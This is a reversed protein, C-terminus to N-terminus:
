EAPQALYAWDPRKELLEVQLPEPQSNFWSIFAPANMKAWQRSAGALAEGRRKTNEIALAWAVAAAPRDELGKSIAEAAADRLGPDILAAEWAEAARPQDDRAWTEFVSAVAQAKDSASVSELAWSLAAAPDERAYVKAFIPLGTEPSSTSDRLRDVLDLAGASDVETLKDIAANFFAVRADISELSMGRDYIANPARQAMWEGVHHAVRTQQASELADFEEIAGDGGFLLWHQFLRPLQAYASKPDTEILFEIAKKHNGYLHVGEFVTQILDESTGADDITELYEIAAETDQSLWRRLWMSEISAMVEKPLVRRAEEMLSTTMQISSLGLLGEIAREAHHPDEIRAIMALAEHPHDRWNIFLQGFHHPRALDLRSELKALGKQPDHLSMEKVWTNLIESAVRPDEQGVVFAWSSSPNTKVWGSLLSDRYEKHHEIARTEIFAVVAQPDKRAWSNIFAKLHDKDEPVRDALVQLAEPIEAKELVGVLFRIEAERQSPNELTLIRRMKEAPDITGKFLPDDELSRQITPEWSTRERSLASAHHEPGSFWSVGVPLCFGAIGALIVAKAQALWWLSAFSASIAVGHWSGSLVHQLVAAVTGSPAGKSASAALSTGLAAVSIVIGRRAMMRQLKRAIGALRKQSANESIGFHEAIQRLSEGNYFRRLVLERDKVGLRNVCEDIACVTEESLGDRTANELENMLDLHGKITQERRQRRAQARQYQMAQYITARFLWARFAEHRALQRAKRAVACFVDQCVERAATDEGVRRRAVQFVLDIHRGVLAAFADEDGTEVFRHLLESDTM